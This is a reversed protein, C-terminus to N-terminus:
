IYLCMVSHYYPRSEDFPIRWFNHISYDLHFLWCHRTYHSKKKNHIHKFRMFQSHISNNCQFHMNHYSVHHTFHFCAFIFLMLTHQYLPMIQYICKTLQLQKHAQGLHLAKAYNFLRFHFLVFFINQSSLQFHLLLGPELKSGGVPDLRHNSDRCKQFFFKIFGFLHKSQFNRLLGPELKSGGVHDLLSNPDRCKQFHFNLLVIVLLILHADRIM